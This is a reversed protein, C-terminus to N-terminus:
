LGLLFERARVAEAVADQPRRRTITHVGYFGAEALAGLLARYDLEGQGLEVEEGRGTGRGVADRARVAAVHNALAEVVAAPEAGSLLVEAPDLAVKLAPNGLRSLLGAWREAPADATELAVRVGVRDAHDAVAAIAEDIMARMRARAAEAPDVKIATEAPGAAPLLLGSASRVMGGAPMGAAWGAGGGGGGGFVAERLSPAGGDTSGGPGVGGARISVLPIGVDRAMELAARARDVAEEVHQPDAFRRGGADADLAHLSLGLGEAYKVLHRRGTRDMRGPDTQGRAAIQVSQFGLGSAAKLSRKAEPGLMEASLGVRIDAM